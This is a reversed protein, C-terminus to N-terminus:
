QLLLHSLGYGQHPLHLFYPRLHQNLLQLYTGPRERQRRWHKEYLYFGGLNLHPSISCTRRNKCVLYCIIYEIQLLIAM